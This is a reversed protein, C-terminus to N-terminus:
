EIPIISKSLALYPSDTHSIAIRIAFKNKELVYPTSKSPILLSISSFYNFFISNFFLSIGKIFSYAKFHISYVKLSLINSEEMTSLKLIFYLNISSLKYFLM